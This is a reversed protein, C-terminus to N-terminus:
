QNMVQTLAEEVTMFYVITGDKDTTERIAQTPIEKVVVVRQKVEETAEEEVADIKEVPKVIKNTEIKKRPLFGM